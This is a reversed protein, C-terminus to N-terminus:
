ITNGKFEEMTASTKSTVGEKKIVKAFTRFLIKFDLWISQNDVYYVDLEFRKEWSLENRGSVQALGTIGPLTEHRRLQTKNYRPLYEMLLPRPGVLSMDGKLVNILEPIEDLSTSRLKKGFLTLRLEDPLLTGDENTQQTMSRFKYMKFPKGHLGPRIQAFIAPKGLKIRVLIFLIGFIPLILPSLVIILFLDFFRKIM